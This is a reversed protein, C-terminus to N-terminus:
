RPRQSAASVASGGVAHETSEFSQLPSHAYGGCANRFYTTFHAIPRSTLTALARKLAWLLMLAAVVLVSVQLGVDDSPSPLIGAERLEDQIEDNNNAREVISVLEDIDVLGDAGGVGEAQLAVMVETRDKSDIRPWLEVRQLEGPQFWIGYRVDFRHGLVELEDAEKAIKDLVSKVDVGVLGSTRWAKAPTVDVWLFAGTTSVEVAVLRDDRLLFQKESLSRTLELVYSDASSHHEPELPPRLFFQLRVTPFYPGQVRPEPTQVSCSVSSELPFDLATGYFPLLARSVYASSNLARLKVTCGEPCTLPLELPLSEGVWAVEDISLFVAEGRNLLVEFPAHLCPLSSNPGYLLISSSSTARALLTTIGTCYSTSPAGLWQGQM